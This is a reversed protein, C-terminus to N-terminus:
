HAARFAVMQMGWMKGNHTATAGYSGIPGAVRDQTINGYALDRSTFGSGAATVINDSVGAAFILDNPSTTTVAGSNLAASSGAASVTVDVANAASIGAYEHVYIVGFGTVAIRFSATVTNMGAAINTSYFIQASSGNGWAVPSGVGTFTDGHTDTLVVTGTNNWIVYAVITNGALTPANFTVSAASGASVQNNNVQVMLPPTSAAATTTVMLQLSQGSLNNSADQAAVTYAYTTIATLGTDAYSAATTTAVQIGNRFVQYGAVAVNDTSASWTVTLATSTVKSAQLGTPVSPPKADPVIATAATVPPSPASVNGAADFASVAYTYQTGTTVTTDSFGTSTTTSLQSNNRLVHYGAVAVNDTSATWILGIQSASVAAAALNSPVSPATKDAATTDSAAFSAFGYDSNNAGGGLYFGMGPNGSSYTSDIGQVIQVNNIYATITNGSITAKVVDGDKIGPGAATNVYTYSGLLGNWRVIQVYQTGDHVCRFNIEYGTNSHASIASRLRCEVEEYNGSNQNVSHVTAQCTQDPGWNGSLIATSDDFGTNGIETGFALGPTTRVDQWDLGNTKGDIWNGGESVPNASAPFNTTYSRGSTANNVTVSTPASVAANGAGDRAM